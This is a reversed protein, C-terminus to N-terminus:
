LLEPCEGEFEEPANQGHLGKENQVFLCSVRVIENLGVNRQFTYFVWVLVKQNLVRRYHTIVNQDWM